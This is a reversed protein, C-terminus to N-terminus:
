SPPRRIDADRLYLPRLAEPLIGEGRALRAAAMRGAVAALFLENRPFLAHPRVALIEARYRSVADGVFSVPGELGELAKGLRAVRPPGLPRAAADYRATFVDDRYADMLAVLMPASGAVVAALVDLASLGLCRRGSALALGQVTSLGVRLGTFSGPGTTVAYGEVDVPKLSLQALLFEVGSVLWRSHGSPTLLRVEGLVADDEVLAVSGRATTTDVALVRM